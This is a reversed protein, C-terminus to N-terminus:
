PVAKRLVASPWSKKGKANVAIVTFYYTAPPLQQIVYSNVDPGVDIVHADLDLDNTAAGITTGYVIRYSALNTLPTGDENQTSPTWSLPVSNANPTPPVTTLKPFQLVAEGGRGDSVRIRIESRVGVHTPGPTGSLKGTAADFTAWPPRNDVIFTLADGDPDAATPTFSYVQGVTATSAPTGSITPPRNPALCAGTPPVIPLWEGPAWCIPYATPTYDLSQTWAGMTGSPCQGPREERNPKPATCTPLAPECKAFIQNPRSTRGADLTVQLRDKLVYADLAPMSAICEAGLPVTGIRSFYIKNRTGLNIQYGIGDIVQLKPEAARAVPALVFSLCLWVVAAAFRRLYNPM